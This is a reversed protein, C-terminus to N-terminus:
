PMLILIKLRVDRQVKHGTLIRNSRCLLTDQQLKLLYDLCFNSYLFIHKSLCVQLAFQQVSMPVASLWVITDSVAAAM